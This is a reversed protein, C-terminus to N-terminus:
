APEDGVTLLPAIQGEVVDSGRKFLYVDGLLLELLQM